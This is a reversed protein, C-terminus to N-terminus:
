HNFSNPSQSQYKPDEVVVYENTQDLSNVARTFLLNIAEYVDGQQCFCYPSSLLVLSRDLRSCPTILHNRYGASFVM